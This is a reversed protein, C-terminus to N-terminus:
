VLRRYFDRSLLFSRSRRWSRVLGRNAEHAPKRRATSAENSDGWQFNQGGGVIGRALIEKNIKKKLIQKAIKSFFHSSKHFTVGLNSKNKYKVEIYDPWELYGLPFANKKLIQSMCVYM